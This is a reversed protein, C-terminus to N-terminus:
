TLGQDNLDPWIPRSARVCATRIANPMCNCRCVRSDKYIVAAQVATRAIEIGCEAQIFEM